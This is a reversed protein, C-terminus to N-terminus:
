CRSGELTSIMAMFDLEPTIKSKLGEPLTAIADEMLKKRGAFEKKSHKSYVWNLGTGDPFTVALWVKGDDLTIRANAPITSKLAAPLKALEVPSKGALVLKDSPASQSRLESLEDRHAAVLVEM